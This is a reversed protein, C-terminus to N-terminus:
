RPGDGLTLTSHPCSRPDCACGSRRDGSPLSPAHRWRVGRVGIPGVAVPGRRLGRAQAGAILLAVGDEVDECARVAGSAQIGRLDVLALPLRQAGPEDVLERGEDLIQGFTAVEGCPEGRLGAAGLRGAGAAGQSGRRAALDQGDGRAAARRLRRDGDHATPLVHDLGARARDAAVREHAAVLDVEAIDHARTDLHGQLAVGHPRAILDVDGGADLDDVPGHIEHGAVRDRLVGAAVPLVARDDEGAEAEHGSVIHLEIRVPARASPDLASPYGSGMRMPIMVDPPSPGPSLATMRPATRFPTRACPTSNAPM